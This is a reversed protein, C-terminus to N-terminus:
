VKHAHNHNYSMARNILFNGVLYLVIFSIIEFAYTWPNTIHDIFILELNNFTKHAITVWFCYSFLRGLFFSLGILKLNTNILGVAIFFQNSPIPSFAYFLMLLPLAIIRKTEIFKGLAIFKLQQAIPLHPKIFRKSLYALSIRGLTAATAGVIVTPILPLDDKIYFFALVMWTPPMFLPFLNLGYVVLWLLGLGTLLTIM